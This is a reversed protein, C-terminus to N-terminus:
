VSTAAGAARTPSAEPWHVVRQPYPIDIGQTRLAELVARNVDSVVNARGNHPDDIWFGLNFELGDAGFARLTASPGPQTLVRPHVRAAEELLHIVAEVDSDYAVAVQTSLWVQRDALSLNEVRQTIFLENPVISEVGTAARLVTYRGRIDTVTGEFGDVKVLDGIRVSREGLVVFGSVYNSALKQLGFGIGVGLAGGLVSLATLNIGVAGLAVVLGVFVLLARLANALMKRLSLDGGGVDRLLYSEALTSLWFALVLVVATILGGELVHRLTWTQDGLTWSVEAAEGQLIPLIGLAWLVFLGWTLWVGWRSVVRLWPMQTASMLLARSIVSVLLWALAFHQALDLLPLGADRRMLARALWIACLSIAPMWVGDWHHRGFLVQHRASGAHVGRAMLRSALAALLLVALGVLLQSASAGDAWAVGLPTQEWDWRNTLANM